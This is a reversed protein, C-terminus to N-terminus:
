GGPPSLQCLAAYVAIAVSSSLNLSRVHETRIPIGVWSGPHAALLADPLGRSEAGFVLAVPASRAADLLRPAWDRPTKSHGRYLGGRNSTGAVLGCDAVAEALTGFVRRNRLIEGAHCAMNAAAAMDMDPNPAVLTLQSLGMNMMARCVSGVNGGYIPRVLVIRIADLPSPSSAAPAPEPSPTM